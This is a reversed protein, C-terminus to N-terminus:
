LCSRTWLMRRIWMITVWDVKKGNVAARNDSDSDFPLSFRLWVAGKMFNLTVGKRGSVQYASNALQQIETLTKEGQEDVLYEFIMRGDTAEAASFACSMLGICLCALLRLRRITATAEISTVPKKDPTM